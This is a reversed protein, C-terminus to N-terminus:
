SLKKINYKYNFSFKHSWTFIFIYFCEKLNSFITNFIHITPKVKVQFVPSISFINYFISCYIIVKRKELKEKAQKAPSFNLFKRVEILFMCFDYKVKM